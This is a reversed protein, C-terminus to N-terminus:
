FQLSIVFVIRVIHSDYGLYEYDEPNLRFQRRSKSCASPEDIIRVIQSININQIDPKNPWRFLICGAKASAEEMFSVDAIMKIVDITLIHCPYIAGEWNVLAYKGAAPTDDVQTIGIVDSNVTEIEENSTKIVKCANDVKETSQCKRKNGSSCPEVKDHSCKDRSVETWNECPSGLLCTECYCSVSATYLISGIPFVAHLKMTGPVTGELETV